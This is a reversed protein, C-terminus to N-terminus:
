SQIELQKLAMNALLTALDAVLKSVCPTAQPESARSRTRVAPALSKWADMWATTGKRLFLAMGLIMESGQGLAQARLAEYREQWVDVTVTAASM